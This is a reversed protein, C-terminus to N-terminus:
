RGGSRRISGVYEGIARAFSGKYILFPLISVSDNTDNTPGLVYFVDFQVCVNYRRMFRRYIENNTLVSQKNTQSSYLKTSMLHEVFEGYLKEHCLSSNCHQCLALAPNDQVDQSQFGLNTPSVQTSMTNQSPVQSPVLISVDLIDENADVDEINDELEVTEEKKVPFQQTTKAQRKRQYLNAIFELTKVRNKTITSSTTSNSTSSSAAPSILVGDEGQFL